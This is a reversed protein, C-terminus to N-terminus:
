FHRDLWDVMIATTTDPDELQTWHGTDIMRRELTEFYQLLNNTLMPHCIPDHRAAIMLAPLAVQPPGVEGFHETHVEWNRLISRYWNLGGRFGSRAYADAYYQMEEPSM